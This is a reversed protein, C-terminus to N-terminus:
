NKMHFDITKKIGDVLTMRESVCLENKIKEVRPVYRDIEGDPKGKIIVEPKDDFCSSVLHALDSISIAEDSGVNYAEGTNGKLLITWLSKALDDAYLYSRVTTGNGTVVISGGNLGDRIFNGIAFHANQPLYPGIFAFCRAIVYDVGYQHHYLACLNEAQRKACGYANLPNLPNPAGTYDEPVHSVDSHQNGYVAGSSIFLLRKVKHQRSYELVNKTGEM